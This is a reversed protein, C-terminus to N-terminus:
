THAIESHVLWYFCQMVRKVASRSLGIQSHFSQELGHVRMAM